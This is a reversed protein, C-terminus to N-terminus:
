ATEESKLHAMLTKSLLLGNAERSEVMRNFWNYAIVAPIAVFLGVGTAVLAESIAGMLGAGANTLDNGLEAFAKIIGLVTGFLGIFPANSGITALFNLRKQYRESEHAGAGSLLEDVAYPGRKHERLGFLCVNTEISDYKQLLKTASDIDGEALMKNLSERISSTNVKHKAYFVIREIVVAVSVFSLILLLWLVWEANFIPLELITEVIGPNKM